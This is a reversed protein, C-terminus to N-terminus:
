LQQEGKVISVLADILIPELREDHQIINRLLRRLRLTLTDTNDFKSRPKLGKLRCVVNMHRNYNQSAKLHAYNAAAGNALKVSNTIPTFGIHSSRGVFINFLFHDMASTQKATAAKAWASRFALYDEKNKFLNTKTTTM